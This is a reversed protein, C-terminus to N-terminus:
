SGTKEPGPVATSTPGPEKAVPPKIILKTTENNLVRHKLVPCYLEYTGPKLLVDFDVTGGAPITPTDPSRSIGNGEVFLGHVQSGVNKLTFVAPGPPIQDPNAVTILNDEITVLVTTGASVLPVPVPGGLSGPHAATDTASQQAAELFKGQEKNENSDRCAALFLVLIASVFAAKCM